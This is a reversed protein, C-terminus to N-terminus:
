GYTARRVRVYMWTPTVSMVPMANLILDVSPPWAHHRLERLGLTSGKLVPIVLPITAPALAAKAAFPDHAVVVESGMGMDFSLAPPVRLSTQCVCVCM